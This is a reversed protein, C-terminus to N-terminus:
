VVAVGFQGRCYGFLGFWCGKYLLQSASANYIFIEMCVGHCFAVEICAGAIGAGCGKYSALAYGFGGRAEVSVAGNVLERGGQSEYECMGVTRRLYACRKLFHLVGEEVDASVKGGIRGFLFRSLQATEALLLDGFEFLLDVGEVRLCGFNVAEYQGSAGLYAGKCVETAGNAAAGFSHNEAKVCELFYVGQHKLVEVAEAVVEEDERAVEVVFGAGLFEDPIGSVAVYVRFFKSLRFFNDVKAAKKEFFASGVVSIRKKVLM